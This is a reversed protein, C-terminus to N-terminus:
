KSYFVNLGLFFGLFFVIALVLVPGIVPLALLAMIVLLLTSVEKRHSTRRKNMGNHWLHVRSFSSCPNNLVEFPRAHRDCYFFFGGIIAM